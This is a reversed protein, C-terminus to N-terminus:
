GGPRYGEECSAAIGNEDFHIFFLVEQSTGFFGKKPEKITYGCKCSKYLGDKDASMGICDFAGYQEVIVESTKGIFDEAKYQSSWGCFLSMLFVSLLIVAIYRKM